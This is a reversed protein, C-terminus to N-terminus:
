GYVRFKAQFIALLHAANKACEDPLAPYNLPKRAYALAIIVLCYGIHPRLQQVIDCIHSLRPAVLRAFALAHFGARSWSSTFKGGQRIHM